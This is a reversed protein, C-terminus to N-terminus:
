LTSVEALGVGYRREAPVQQLKCLALWVERPLFGAQLAEEGTRNGCEALVADRLLVQGLAGFEESVALRFESLTV